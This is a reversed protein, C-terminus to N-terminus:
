VAVVGGKIQVNEYTFSGQVLIRLVIIILQNVIFIANIVSCSLAAVQVYLYECLFTAFFYKCNIWAYNLSAELWM